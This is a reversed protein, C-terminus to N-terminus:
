AKKAVPEVEGKKQEIGGIIDGVLNSAKKLSEDRLHAYRQTMLPSKHTLLRQLTYMDVQGSSALMSAYVHRLGHVPRFHEPLGAAKKIRILSKRCDTLPERPKKGPFVYQGDRQQINEFVSRVADNMPISQDRGGKPNRITIFGRQFDIDAWQLKLIESRRMGSYLAIRMVNAATQDKDANMAGLLRNLQDATLDETTQNNLRPIEIKFDIPAILGKKTGFNITRRLLELIRAATTRKGRKELGLRIRDVDLPLLEHPEKGGISERLHVDFKRKEYKLIKNAPFTECYKDWLRAVTWKGAEALKREAEQERIEKRSERKGEIRDARIGAARAPTMDDAFQRGVKEEIVKGDKKFVIYYVKEIGNGGIRDAERFFVGPYKTKMRKPM